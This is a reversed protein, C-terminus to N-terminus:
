INAKIVMIFVAFIFQLKINTFNFGYNAENLRAQIETGNSINDMSIELSKKRRDKHKREEAVNNFFWNLIAEVPLTIFQITGLIVFKINCCAGASGMELISSIVIPVTSKESLFSVHFEYASFGNCISFLDNSLHALLTSHDRFDSLDYRNIVGDFELKAGNLALKLPLLLKRVSECKAEIPQRSPRYNVSVVDFRLFLTPEPLVADVSIQQTSIHVAM